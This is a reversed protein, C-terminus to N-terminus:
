LHPSYPRWECDDGDVLKERLAWIPQALDNSRHHLLYQFGLHGVREPGLLALARGGPEAVAGAVVGARKHGPDTLELQPHRLIAVAPERGFEEFAVLARFLRQHRCQGLHVYL